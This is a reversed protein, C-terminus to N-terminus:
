PRAACISGWRVRAAATPEAFASARLRSPPDYKDASKDVTKVAMACLAAATAEAYASAEAFVSAKANASRREAADGNAKEVTDM